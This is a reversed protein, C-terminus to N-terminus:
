NVVWIFNERIYVKFLQMRGIMILDTILVLKHTACEGMLVDVSERIMGRATLTGVWGENTAVATGVLQGVPIARLFWTETRWSALLTSFFPYLVTNSVCLEICDKILNTM